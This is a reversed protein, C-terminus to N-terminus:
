MALMSFSRFPPFAVSCVYREARSVKISDCARPIAADLSGFCISHPAGSNMWAISSFNPILNWVESTESVESTEPLGKGGFIDEMVGIGDKMVGGIACTVGFEELDIEGAQREGAILFEKGFQNLQPFFQDLQM